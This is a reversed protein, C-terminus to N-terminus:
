FSHAFSRLWTEFDEWQTPSINMKKIFIKKIEAISHHPSHLITMTAGETAPICTQLHELLDRYPPYLAFLLDKLTIPDNSLLLASIKEMRERMAEIRFRLDNPRYTNLPHALYQEFDAFCHPWAAVLSCLMSRITGTLPLDAQPFDYYWAWYSRIVHTPEGNPAYESRFGNHPPLSAANDFHLIALSGDSLQKYRTNLPALDYHSFLLSALCSLAFPKLSFRSVTSSYHHEDRTIPWWLFLSNWYPQLSAKCVTSPLNVVTTPLFTEEVGFICAAEWALQEQDWESNTKFVAFPHPPRSEIQGWKMGPQLWSEDCAPFVFHTHPRGPFTPFLLPSRQDALCSVHAALHLLACQKELFLDTHLSPIDRYLALTRSLAFRLEEKGPPYAIEEILSSLEEYQAHLLPNEIEPFPEFSCFILFFLLTPV